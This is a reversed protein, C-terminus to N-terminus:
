RGDDNMRRTRNAEHPHQTYAHLPAPQGRRKHRSLAPDPLGASKGSTYCAGFRSGMPYDPYAGAWVCANGPTNPHVPRSRRLNKLHIPCRAFRGSVPWHPRDSLGTLKLWRSRPQLRGISAEIEPAPTQARRATCDESSWSPSGLHHPASSNFRDESTPSASSCRSSPM